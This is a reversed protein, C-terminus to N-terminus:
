TMDSRRLIEQKKLRPENEETSLKQDVPRGFFSIESRTRKVDKEIEDLVEQDEFYRYWTMFKDKTIASIDPGYPM